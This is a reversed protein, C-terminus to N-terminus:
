KSSKWAVITHVLLMASNEDGTAMPTKVITATFDKEDQDDELKAKRLAKTEDNELLKMEVPSGHEDLFRLTQKEDDDLYALQFDDKEVAIQQMVAHGAKVSDYKTSTIICRASVRAKMHGHKGTKSLKVETVKCPHGKIMVFNGKKLAHAQVPSLFEQALDACM